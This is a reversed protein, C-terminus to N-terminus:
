AALAAELDLLYQMAALGGDYVTLTRKSATAIRLLRAGGLWEIEVMVRTTTGELWPFQITGVLGARGCDLSAGQLRCPAPFVAPVTAIQQQLAPSGVKLHVTFRGHEIESLRLSVVDIPHASLPRASVLSLGVVIVPLLGPAARARM